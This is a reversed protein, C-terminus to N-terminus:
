ADGPRLSKLRRTSLGPLVLDTGNSSIGQSRANGLWWCGHITNVKYSLCIRAKWSFYQQLRYWKLTWFHCMFHLCIKINGWFLEACLSNINGSFMGAVCSTRRGWGYVASQRRHKTGIGAPQCLKLLTSVRVVHEQFATQLNSVHSSKIWSFLCKSNYFM